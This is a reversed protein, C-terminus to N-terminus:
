AAAEDDDKKGIGLGALIDALMAFVQQFYGKIQEIVDQFRDM